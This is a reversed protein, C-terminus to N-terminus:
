LAFTNRLFPMSSACPPATRTSEFIDLNDESTNTPHLSPLHAALQEEKQFGLM